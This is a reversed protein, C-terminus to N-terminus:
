RRNKLSTKDRLCHALMLREARKEDHSSIANIVPYHQRIDSQIREPTVCSITRLLHIKASLSDLIEVLYTNGGRKAIELHFENDKEFAGAIDGTELLRLCEDTLLKLVERDQKEANQALRFASLGEIRARVESLNHADEPELLIVKSRNHRVLKVLGIRELKRLAERIPTRSVGFTRAITEEPIYQGPHLEESLIMRKVHEFVQDSLSTRRLPITKKLTM